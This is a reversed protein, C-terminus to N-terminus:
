SIGVSREEVDVTLLQNALASFIYSCWSQLHINQNISRNVARVLVIICKASTKNISLFMKNGDM